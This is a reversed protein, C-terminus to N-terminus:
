LSNWAFPRIGKYYINALTKITTAQGAGGEVVQPKM